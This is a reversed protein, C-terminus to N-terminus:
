ARSDPFPHPPKPRLFPFLSIQNAGAQETLSRAWYYIYNKVGASRLLLPSADLVLSVPHVAPGRAAGTEAIKNM